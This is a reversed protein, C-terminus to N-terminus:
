YILAISTTIARVLIRRARKGLDGRYLIDIAGEFEKLAQEALNSGPAM